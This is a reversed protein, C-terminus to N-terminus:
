QFSAPQDCSEAPTVGRYVRDVREDPTDPRCDSMLQICDQCVHVEEGSETFRWAAWVEGACVSCCIKLLPAVCRDFPLLEERTVREPDFADLADLQARVRTNLPVDREASMAEAWRLSSRMSQIAARIMDRESVFELGAPLLQQVM